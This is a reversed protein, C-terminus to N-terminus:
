RTLPRALDLSKILAHQQQLINRYYNKGEDKNEFEDCGDSVLMIKGFNMKMIKNACNDEIIVPSQQMEMQSLRMEMFNQCTSHRRKRNCHHDDDFWECNNNADHILGQKQLSQHIWSLMKMYKVQDKENGRNKDWQWQLKAMTIEDFKELQLQEFMDPTLKVKEVEKEEKEEYFKDDMSDDLMDVYFHNMDACDDEEEKEEECFDGTIYLNQIVNMIEDGDLRLEHKLQHNAPISKEEHPDCSICQEWMSHICAPKYNTDMGGRDVKMSRWSEFPDVAPTEYSSSTITCISSSSSNSSMLMDQLTKPASNKVPTFLSYDNSDDHYRWKNDVVGRCYEDYIKRKCYEENIEMLSRHSARLFDNLDTQSSKDNEVQVVFKICFEAEAEDEMADLDIGENWKMYHKNNHMLGGSPSREWKVEDWQDDIVFTHGDDIIPSFHSRDSTLLNDEDSTDITLAREFHSTNNPHYNARIITSAIFPRFRKFASAESHNFLTVDSPEDECKQWSKM